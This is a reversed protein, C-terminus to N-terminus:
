KEGIRRGVSTRGFVFAGFSGILIGIGAGVFIQSPYHRGLYVRSCAVLCAIVWFTLGVWRRRIGKGLAFLIFTAVTFYNIAHNSPMGRNAGPCRDPIWALLDKLDLCPRSLAFLHKLGNGLLDGLGLLSVAVLFTVVGAKRFRWALGLCLLTLLPVAFPTTRSIFGFFEDAAPSSFWRHVLAVGAADPGLVNSSFANAEVAGTPLLTPDVSVSPLSAVTAGGSWKVVDLTGRLAELTVIRNM